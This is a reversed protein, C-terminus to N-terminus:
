PLATLVWRKEAGKEPLVILLCPSNSDLQQMEEPTMQKISYVSYVLKDNNSMGLEIPDKSNLTRIVAELQRSWPLAVWRCVETGQLWEAGTPNWSGQANLSGKGLTFNWGGPLGVSTPYPLNSVAEVPTNAAVSRQYANYILFGAIVAMVLGLFALSFNIYRQYPKLANEVADLREELQDPKRAEVEVFVDEGELAVTRVESLSENEELAPRPQFVQKKLEEIDVPKEPESEPQSEPAVPVPTADQNATEEEALLDILDDIEDQYEDQDEEPAAVEPEGTQVASLAPLNIEDPLPVPAEEVKKKRSSRGLKKWWKPQEQEQSAEELLSKRVDELLDDPNEEEPKESSHSPIGTPPIEGMPIEAQEDGVTSAEQASAEPNEAALMEARLKAEEEIQDANPVSTNQTAEEKADEPVQARADSSEPELNEFISKFEKKKTM